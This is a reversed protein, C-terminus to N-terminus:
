WCRARGSPSTAPTAMAGTTTAPPASGRPMPSLAPASSISASTPRAALASPARWPRCPSPAATSRPMTSISTAPTASPRKCILRATAGTSGAASATRAWITTAPARTAPTPRSAGARWRPWCRSPNSPAARRTSAARPAISCRAAPIRGCRMGSKPPCPPFSTTPSIARCAPWPWSTATARTWWWWRAASAPWRRSRRANFACIWRSHSTAAGAPRAPPSKM